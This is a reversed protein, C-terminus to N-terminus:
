PNIKHFPEAFKNLKSIHIEQELNLLNMIRKVEDSDGDFYQFIKREWLAKEIHLAISVARTIPFDLNDKFEIILNNIFKISSDLNSSRLEGQSFRFINATDSKVIRRIMSAHQYEENAMEAWFMKYEPYRKAYLKYLTGILNEQEAFSDVLQKQVTDLDM